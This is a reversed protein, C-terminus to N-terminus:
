ALWRAYAWGAVGMVTLITCVTAIAVVTYFWIADWVDAPQDASADTDELHTQSM